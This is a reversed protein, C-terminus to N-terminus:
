GCHGTLGMTNLPLASAALTRTGGPIGIKPPQLANCSPMPNPNVMTPVPKSTMLPSASTADAPAAVGRVVKAIKTPAPSM